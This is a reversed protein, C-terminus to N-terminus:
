DEEALGEEPQLVQVRLVLGLVVELVPVHGTAVDQGELLQLPRELSGALFPELLACPVVVLQATLGWQTQSPLLRWWRTLRPNPHDDHAVIPPARNRQVSLCLLHRFVILPLDQLLM